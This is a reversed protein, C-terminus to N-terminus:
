RRTKAAIASMAEANNHMVAVAEALEKAIQQVSKDFEGALEHMEAKREHTRRQEAQLTAQEMSHIEIMNRRFVDIAEAMTGIEDRRDLYGINVDTKGTSLQRMVDTISKIPRVISARVFATVVASMFFGLVTGLIIFLKNLEADALLAPACGMPSNPPKSQFSKSIPTSLRSDTMLKALCCRRWPPMQGASTSRM